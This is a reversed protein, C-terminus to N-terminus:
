YLVWSRGTNLNMGAQYGLATNNSGSTNTSLAGLGTATNGGGNINGLLAFAGSATNDQGTNSFL